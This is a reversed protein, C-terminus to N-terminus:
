NFLDSRKKGYFNMYEEFTLHKDEDESNHIYDYLCIEGEETLNLSDILNNFYGEQIKSLERIFNRTYSIQEEPTQSNLDSFFM